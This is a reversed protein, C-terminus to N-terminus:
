GKKDLEAKEKEIIDLVEQDTWKRQNRRLDNLHPIKSGFTNRIRKRLDRSHSELKARREEITHRQELMDACDNYAQNVDEPTLNPKNLKKILLKVAQLFMSKIVSKKGLPYYQVYDGLWWLQIEHRYDGGLDEDNGNEYHDWIEINIMPRDEDKGKYCPADIRGDLDYNQLDVNKNLGYCGTASEWYYPHEKYGSELSKLTIKKNAM